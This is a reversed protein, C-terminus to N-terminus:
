AVQMATPEVFVHWVLHEVYGDSLPYDTTPTHSPVNIDQHVTGLYKWYKIDECDHGTGKIRVRVKTEDEYLDADPHDHDLKDVMVWVAPGGDMHDIGAHLFYHRRPVKITTEGPALKFKWITRM